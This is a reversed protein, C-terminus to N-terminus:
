FCIIGETTSGLNFRLPLFTFPDYPYVVTVVVRSGPINNGDPYAVTTSLRSTNLLGTKAYKVINATIEATNGPGSPGDVGTGTRSAGHVIAYRVATRASHAVTTSVLVMRSIEFIAFLVLCLQVIVLSFEVISSGRQRPSAPAASM